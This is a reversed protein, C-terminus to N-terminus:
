LLVQNKLIEVYILILSIFAYILSYIFISILNNLIILNAIIVGKLNGKMKYKRLELKMLNFLKKGNPSQQIMM